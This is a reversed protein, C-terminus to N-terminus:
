VKGKPNSTKLGELRSNINEMSFIGKNVYCVPCKKWSCKGPLETSNLLSIVKDRTDIVEKRFFPNNVVERKEGSDLYEVAGRAIKINFEGELLLMYAALQIRHSDWVGTKPTKGTKLEIPCYNDGDIEVKDIIGKIELEESKVRLESKVKPVLSEWLEDGFVNKRRAFDQLFSSRANSEKEIYSWVFKFVEPMKLNVDEIRSKNKIIVQRLIESYNKRYLNGIKPILGPKTISRVLQEDAKNMRDYCEHRIGGKVMAENPPEFIGLVREVFLKRKCFLYSSLWTVSIFM